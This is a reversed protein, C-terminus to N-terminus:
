VAVAQKFSHYWTMEEYTFKDKIGLSQYYEMLIKLHLAEEFDQQSAKDKNSCMNYNIIIWEYFSSDKGDFIMHSSIIDYKVTDLAKQFEEDSLGLIDHVLETQFYEGWTKVTPYEKYKAYIENVTKEAIFPKTCVRDVFEKIGILCEVKDLSLQGNNVLPILEDNLLYEM